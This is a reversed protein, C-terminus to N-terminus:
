GSIRGASIVLINMKAPKISDKGNMM